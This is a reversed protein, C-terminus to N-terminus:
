DWIQQFEFGCARCVVYQHKFDDTNQPTGNVKLRKARLCSPCRPLKLTVIREPEHRGDQLIEDPGENRDDM